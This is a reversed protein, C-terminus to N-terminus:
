SPHFIFIKDKRVVCFFSWCSQVGRGGVRGRRGGRGEGIDIRRRGRKAEKEKGEAMLDLFYQNNRWGCLLLFCVLFSESPVLPNSGSVQRVAASQEVVSSYGWSSPLVRFHGQSNGQCVKGKWSNLKTWKYYLM